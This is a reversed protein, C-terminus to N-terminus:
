FTTLLVSRGHYFRAQAMSGRAVLPKAMAPTEFKRKLGWNFICDRGCKQGSKEMCDPPYLRDGLFPRKQPESSAPNQIKRETKLALGETPMCLDIKGADIPRKPSQTTVFIANGNKKLKAGQFLRGHRFLCRCVIALLVAGAMPISAWDCECEHASGM